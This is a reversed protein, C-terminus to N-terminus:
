TVKIKIEVGEDFHRPWNAFTKVNCIGRGKAGRVRKVKKEEKKTGEKHLHQAILTFVTLFGECLGCIKWTLAYTAENALCASVSLCCFLPFLFASPSFLSDRVCSSM